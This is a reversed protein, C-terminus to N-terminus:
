SLELVRLKYIKSKTASGPIRESPKKLVQLRGGQPRLESGIEEWRVVGHM